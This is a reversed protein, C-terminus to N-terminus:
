YPPVKGPPHHTMTWLDVGGARTAIWSTAYGAFMTWAVIFAFASFAYAAWGARPDELRAIEHQAMGNISLGAVLSAVSSVISLMTIAAAAGVRGMSTQTLIWACGRIPAADMADDVASRVTGKVSGVKEAFLSDRRPCFFRECCSQRRPVRHGGSQTQAGSFPNVRAKKESFAPDLLVDKGGKFPDDLYDEFPDEEKM